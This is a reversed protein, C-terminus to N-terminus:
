FDSSLFFERVPGRVRCMFITLVSKYWILGRLFHLKNKVLLPNLTKKRQYYRMLIQNRALVQWTPDSWINYRASLAQRASRPWTKYRFCNISGQGQLTNVLWLGTNLDRSWHRGILPWYEQAVRMPNCSRASMDFEKPWVSLKRTPM